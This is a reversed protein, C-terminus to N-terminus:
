EGMKKEKYKMIQKKLAEIVSDVSEEFSKTGKEAFLETGPLDIKIKAIKNEKDSQSKNFTLFVDASVIKTEFKQLKDIKNEVFDTLKKDADFHMTNIKINMM